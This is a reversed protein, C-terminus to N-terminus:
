LLTINSAKVKIGNKTLFVAEVKSNINVGIIVGMIRNLIGKTILITNILFIVKVGPTCVITRLM